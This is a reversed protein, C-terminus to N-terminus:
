EIRLMCRRRKLKRYILRGGFFMSILVTMLVTIMTFPAKGIGGVEPFEPGGFINTFTIENTDSTLVTITATLPDDYLPGDYLHNGYLLNDDIEIKVIQTSTDYNWLASAGGTEQIKFYYTGKPLDEIPPFSFGYSGEGNTSINRTRIIAEDAPEYEKGTEDAVQTLTFSFTAKPAKEGVVKKTASIVLEYL